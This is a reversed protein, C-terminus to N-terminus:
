KLAPVRTVVLLPAAFAAVHNFREKVSDKANTAVWIRTGIWDLRAFSSVLANSLCAIAIAGTREADRLRWLDTAKCQVILIKARHWIHSSRTRQFKQKILALVTM